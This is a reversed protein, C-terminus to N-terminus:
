LKIDIKWYLGQHEISKSNESNNKYIKTKNNQKIDMNKEPPLNSFIHLYNYCSDKIMEFKVKKIYHCENQM